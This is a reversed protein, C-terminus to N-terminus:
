EGFKTKLAEIDQQRLNYLMDEAQILDKKLSEIKDKLMAKTFPIWEARPSTKYHWMRNLIEQQYNM